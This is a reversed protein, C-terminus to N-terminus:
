RTTLPYGMFARLVDLLSDENAGLCGCDPAHLPARLALTEVLETSVVVHFGGWTAHSMFLLTQQATHNVSASTVPVM